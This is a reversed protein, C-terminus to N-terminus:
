RAASLESSGARILHTHRCSCCYVRVHLKRIKSFTQWDMEIGSSVQDQTKPCRCMLIGFEATEAPREPALMRAERAAPIISSTVNQVEIGMSM